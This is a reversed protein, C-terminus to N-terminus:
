TVDAPAWGFRTRSHKPGLLWGVTLAGTDTLSNPTRVPERISQEHSVSEPIRERGRSGEGARTPLGEFATDM